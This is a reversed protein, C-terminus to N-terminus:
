TPTTGTTSARESLSAASAAPRKRRRPGSAPSGCDARRTGHRHIKRVLRAHLGCRCRRLRGSLRGGSGRNVGYQAMLVDYVTAVQVTTGDTTQADQVARRSDHITGAGFNDLEVQVVGDNDELFTLRPKIESGDKGDKLLLNWKGKTEAWRFGSSGMPMKPANADEDWM